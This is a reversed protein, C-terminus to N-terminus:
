TKQATPEPRFFADSTLRKDMRAIKGSYDNTLQGAKEAIAFAKERNKFKGRTTIFGDEFARWSVEEIDKLEQYFNIIDQHGIGDTDEPFLYTKGAYRIAPQKIKEQIVARERREGM